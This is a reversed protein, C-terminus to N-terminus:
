KHLPGEQQSTAKPLLQDFLPAGESACRQLSSICRGVVTDKMAFPQGHDCADTNRNQSSCAEFDCQPDMVELLRIEYTHALTSSTNSTVNESFVMRRNTNFHNKRPLIEYPPSM